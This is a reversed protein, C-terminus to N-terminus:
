SGSRQLSEMFAGLLNEPVYIELFDDDQRAPHQIDLRRVKTLARCSHCSRLAARQKWTLSFCM